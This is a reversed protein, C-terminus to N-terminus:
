DRGGRGWKLTVLVVAAVSAQHFSFLLTFNKHKIRTIMLSVKFSLELNEGGWIEFGPDYSGLYEFYEKSISFLGGAM